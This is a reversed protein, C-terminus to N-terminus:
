GSGLTSPTPTLMLRTSSGCCRAPRTGSGLANMTTASSHTMRHTMRHPLWAQLDWAADRLMECHVASLSYASRPARPLPHMRPPRPSYWAHIPSYWAQLPASTSDYRYRTSRRARPALRATRRFLWTGSRPWMAAGAWEALLGRKAQGPLLLGVSPIRDASTWFQPTGRLNSPEVARIFHVSRACDWCM